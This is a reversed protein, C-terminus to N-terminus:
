GSSSYLRKLKYRDSEPRLRAQQGTAAKQGIWDTHDLWGFRILKVKPLGNTGFKEFNVTSATM